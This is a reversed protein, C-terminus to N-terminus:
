AGRVMHKLRRELLADAVMLYGFLLPIAALGPALMWSHFVLSHYQRAEALMNGWSPIPEGIGLGLFSLTVEALIYQPILVTAQTVLVSGTLPLIHRRILYPAGAGFGRAALVFGRERASLVVGRIIRAPRVWGVTGIIAVLLFFAQVTGIHLPLLARVGLLLYLWPLALFLESGRMVLRDIWGGYFGSIAGWFLGLGLALVTAALGTALSVRGGYLVRSFVDRGSADTGWLFVYGPAAVGFLRGGTFFHIPYRAGREGYVFPRLGDFHIATPPAYALERHQEAYGYPALYGAFLIAAHALILVTVSFRLM